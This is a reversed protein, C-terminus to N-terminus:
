FNELLWVNNDQTRGLVALYRGDPSPVGRAEAYVKPFRERWIVQARGEQDVYLLTAGLGGNASTFLGRGDAAWFLRRLGNWGQVNVERAEGGALPVIQIRGAHEDYPAFALRSGDLSLDWSYPSLDWFRPAIPQKVNVKSLERGRGKVPDFGSFILQKDDPTRESFVCNAAPSRACALYDIGQGELVLQPPGGSTSVRLIRVPTTAGIRGTASSLYLIWSGDPSVVPWRKYDPGTVIAQATTQDLAQKYIGWTDDRDSHFLIATSDPMWHGPYDGSDELTLRHPGKLRRNGAELEGIYVHSDRTFKTVALRKGDSTASLQVLMAEAWNTIQRPKSLPEGTRTDVRVDWLNDEQRGEEPGRLVYVLRGSPFWLFVGETGCLRPDSAIVTPQEEKLDRSEISCELRDPTRHYRTYAIRRGDPSWATWFFADDESGSVLRRPENGQAGMLWIERSRVFGAGTGFAILTGDPSVSWADADDRLERPPGGLVSVAWASFPHGPEVREAIFKTGDPFWANPWWSDAGAAPGEPQPMNVAEGTQILKLHLGTQDGYALYKGDPSIAGQNVANERPNATLRREKLQPAPPRHTAFWAISLILAAVGLMGVLPLAWPPRQLPPERVAGGVAAPPSAPPVADVPAIFRYGRRPLTEIYRPTGADDELAERLKRVAHNLGDEFDVFTDAWLKKRLQERTVVEGPQELLLSLVHLSNEGLRIKDSGNRLEGARTDLEFNGFRILHPPCTPEKM